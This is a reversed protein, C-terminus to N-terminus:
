SFIRRRLLALRERYIKGIVAPDLQNKISAAAHAGIRSALGTEDILRRLCDAAHDVSAEAWPQGAEYVGLPEALPVLEYEVPFSNMPTMFEMNASWGTAIVPKGLYMMEAPGLGFGEALRVDCAPGTGLAIKRPPLDMAHGSQAILRPM